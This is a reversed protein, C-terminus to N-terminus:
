KTIKKTKTNIENLQQQRYATVKRDIETQPLGQAELSDELETVRIELQRYLERTRDDLVEKTASHKEIVEVEIPVGDIDDDDWKSKKLDSDSLTEGDLDDDDLPEGDLDDLPEGDLDDFDEVKKPTQEQLKEEKKWAQEPEKKEESKEKQKFAVPGAPAVTESDPLEPPPQSLDTFADYWSKLKDQPYICGDSWVKLVKLVREKLNQQTIRGSITQYKHRFSIFVSLLTEEFATRFLSGNPVGHINHLIDSVLFLRAIKSLVPTKLITLSDTLIEVIEPASESHDLAVGMAERISSREITLARLLGELHDRAEDALPRGRFRAVLDIPQSPDPEPSPDRLIIPKSDREEREREERERESRERVSPPVPPVWFPGGEFMQFPEQKWRRLTDGNLLSFVRWRYYM